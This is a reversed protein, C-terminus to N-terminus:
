EFRWALNLGIGYNRGPAPEYYRGNSENVIVSGVYERDFLNDIRGFLDMDMRGYSWKYGTTLGVVTWSPAKATNEDNAMIDSMYRIDSGAYWGQEPQYGFSAYGMNRAIGPIRNGNCSADDCVNTRYTADLWTWAAKLRWSEGFQQDLGLEMGQRRTKGANKYSTRGGSSSDVVIENDTNTQFLAATFLGNGIRTKSGIEVTDNTSPKLGFNLGSQNDSRYSLENITPTEFGRGASLYVNWADTLAYKLSGAPLWKHYSADGSDDGNGPTIYYDNSDFWVSSYRVGADLSLKDTLQWQTQLYPDVNWMLNRENRRLAGQEGYQPAGNVMVFNEYGKRRESMNEYDLGATLTVPVLLEGRHTLRTDIGQYHRTLDIVGGAHSPKLQPARPISQFQTTEREGAYMMVSLDDQASLQREYRLGAQTQRTNKRTNYQDGRPSQRPNDRWEDATLGGADNAKIDVSNLLLTLKSVDNIRVGLRANALNKRAGSHDRYGHTTFRNTSVTYDVDGAHSGDGVAGTAKMGYHWTGFSGYYSSAEVTPPQTGTQSTVNIVGGSSNGYLASFPGRLVEITDVSGIDINSTQGQGDPMTAPIGDVYIRLGRVGYTSRSGFGRISLQLDQAYNQRNQVQLGPVAGLSESLNVRPAAQRMEDGNVVSVAAPTDLESVTTPAATVVMTQEDAAQAAAILPLLLAPLAAHRVSLIKM